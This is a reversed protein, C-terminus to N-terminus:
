HYSGPVAYGGVNGLGTSAAALEEVMAAVLVEATVLGKAQTTAVAALDM